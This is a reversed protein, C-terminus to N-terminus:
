GTTVYENVRNGQSGLSWNYGNILLPRLILFWGLGRLRALSWGFREVRRTPLNFANELQVNLYPAFALAM